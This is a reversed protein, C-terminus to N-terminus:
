LAARKTSAAESRAKADAVAQKADDSASAEGEDAEATRQLLARYNGRQSEMGDRMEDPLAAIEGSDKRVPTFKAVSFEAKAGKVNELTIKTVIEHPLYRGETGIRQVYEAWAKFSQRTFRIRVPIEKGPLAFAISLYNNCVKVPGENKLTEFACDRASRERADRNKPCETCTSSEPSEANSPITVGDNSFCPPMEGSEQEGFPKGFYSNHRTFAVVVGTLGKTGDVKSDDPFQFLNAGHGKVKITDLTPRVNGMADRIEDGTASGKSSEASKATEVLSEATFDGLGGFTGAKVVAKEDSM